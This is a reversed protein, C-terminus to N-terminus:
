LKLNAAGAEVAAALTKDAVAAYRATSEPRRHGAVKGAVYLDIGNAIMAGIAAHRLDHVHMGPLGAEDCATKWARKFNDFPKGTAPNTILWPSGTPRPLNEIVALAAKSLPVTRSHGNKTMPLFWEARQMDVHELRAKLLEQKRCATALLLQVIPKLLPNPSNGCAMLLRDVQDPSLLCTRKNDYRPRAVSAVPNTEAGPLGWGKALQYARHMTLRLRDVTAPAKTKRLDAFFTEIERPPVDNIRRKGFRPRLYRRHALEVCAHSRLHGKAHEIHLNGLEGFTIVAKRDAKEAAPDGGLVIKSRLEKARRKAADFQIDSYGGIKIQAAKGQQTTYYLYYTKKGSPRVEIGFGTQETCRFVEKRLGPACDVIRCLDSTLKIKAM